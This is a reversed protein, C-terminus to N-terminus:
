PNTAAKWQPLSGFGWWSNYNPKPSTVVPFGYITYWNWYPSQPGKQKCDVFFANEDSTHNFVGDLIVKMGMGHARSLFTRFAADGGFHPDVHMYDSINYKHNSSSTFIPNLYIATIGLSKLYPLKQTAGQLDGGMFNDYTPRSGWPQVNDPDNSPDGNAFREPFIQYFVANKAWDPTSVKGTRLGSANLRGDSGALGQPMWGCGSLLIAGALVSGWISKRMM